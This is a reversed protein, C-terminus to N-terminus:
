LIERIPLTRLVDRYQRLMVCGTKIEIHFLDHQHPARRVFPDRLPIMPLIMVNRMPRHCFRPDKRKPFLAKRKEGASLLLAHHERTSERLLRRTEDQIFRRIMQIDGVLQLDHIQHTLTMQRHKRGNM